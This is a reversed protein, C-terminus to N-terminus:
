DARECPHDVVFCVDNSFKIVTPSPLASCHAPVDFHARGGNPCCTRFPAPMLFNGAADEIHATLSRFEDGVLFVPRRTNDSVPKWLTGGPGDVFSACPPVPPNLLSDFYEVTALCATYHDKYPQIGHTPVTPATLYFFDEEPVCVIGEHPFPVEPNETGTAPPKSIEDGEPEAVEPIPITVIPPAPRIDTPEAPTEVGGGCMGTGEICQARAISSALIVALIMIGAPLLYRM